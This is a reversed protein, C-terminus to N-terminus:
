PNNSLRRNFELLDSNKFYNKSFLIVPKPFEGKDWYRRLTSTSVDYLKAVGALTTFGDPNLGETQENKEIM